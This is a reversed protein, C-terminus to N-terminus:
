DFPLIEIYRVGFNEEMRGFRPDTCVKLISLLLAGILRTCDATNVIYSEGTAVSICSERALLPLM